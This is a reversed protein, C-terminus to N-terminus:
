VYENSFIFGKRLVEFTSKRGVPLAEVGGWSIRELRHLLDDDGFATGIRHDYEAKFAAIDETLDNLGRASDTPILGADAALREYFQELRTVVRKVDFESVRETAADGFQHRRDDDSLLASLADGYATPSNAVYGTEGHHVLEVQANDRMPTSDVVPPVGNAMAEAIVYGYSEGIASTHALVDITAYFDSVTEPPLPDVYTVQDKWGYSRIQKRIKEPVGVLFLQADPTRELVRDFARITLKGWKEPVPRGIKGVVPASNPIGYEERLSEGKSVEDVDLPNYLHAMNENWNGDLGINNVIVTRLLITKSPYFFYDVGNGSDTEFYNGFQDTRIHLPVGADAAAASLLETDGSHSHVIDIEKESIYEALDAVGDPEYVDYGSERLSDARPGGEHVGVAYTNFEESHERIFLEAAKETGGIDWRTPAHLVNLAM